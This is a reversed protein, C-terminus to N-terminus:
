RRQGIVFSQKFHGILRLDHGSPRQLRHRFIDNVGIRPEIARIIGIGSNNADARRYAVSGAGTKSDNIIPFSDPHDDPSLRGSRLNDIAGDHAIPMPSM